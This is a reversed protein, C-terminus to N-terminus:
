LRQFKETLSELEASNCTSIDEPQERLDDVEKQLCRQMGPPLKKMDPTQPHVPPEPAGWHAAGRPTVGGQSLSLPQSNEPVQSNETNFYLSKFEGHHMCCCPMGSRQAPVRMPQVNWLEDCPEPDPPLGVMGEGFCCHSDTGINLRRRASRRKSRGRVRFEGLARSATACAQLSGLSSRGLMGRSSPDVEVHACVAAAEEAAGSGTSLFRHLAGASPDTLMQVVAAYAAAFQFASSASCEGVPTPKRPKTKCGWLAAAEAQTMGLKSESQCGSKFELQPNLVQPSSPGGEEWSAGGGEGEGQDLGIGTAQLAGPSGPSAQEESSSGNGDSFGSAKSYCSM